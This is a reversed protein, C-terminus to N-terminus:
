KELGKIYNSEIKSIVELMKPGLDTRKKLEFYLNAFASLMYENTYFSNFVYKHTDWIRLEKPASHNWIMLWTYFLHKSHMDKPSIFNNDNSTKWKFRPDILSKEMNNM